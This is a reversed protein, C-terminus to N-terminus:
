SLPWLQVAFSFSQADASFSVCPERYFPLWRQVFSVPWILIFNGQGNATIQDGDTSADDRVRDGPAKRREVKPWRKKWRQPFKIQKAKERSRRRRKEPWGSRIQKSDGM